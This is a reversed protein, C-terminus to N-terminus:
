NSPPPRWLKRLIAM